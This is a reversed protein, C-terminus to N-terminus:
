GPESEDGSQRRILGRFAQRPTGGEHVVRYVERAIPMEVGHADALAIVAPVSKVGEAVMHMKRVIEDLRLGKGLQEGVFRNRSHASTCTAVLDGMGALGAFTEPRGGLATGLRTIEALGRTIVAARTNDGAGLGDGMGAAIAVVNKLVGGLECGIVDTNTYVRFLGSRFLEKLRRVITDDDMALVSAAADGAMIERALNPGTLVAPPHGPLVEEIIQTMRAQTGAELGKALSIVPVWPRIYRAIDIATARFTQSPVGMVIVDADRVAEALDATATLRASLRADPLYRQNTHRENIEGVTAVDRAWLVTPTNRSVMSAITTGWSGGGMVAVRLQM